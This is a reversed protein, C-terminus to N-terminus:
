VKNKITNNRQKGPSKRIAFSIVWGLFIMILYFDVMILLDQMEPHFNLILFNLVFFSIIFSIKIM